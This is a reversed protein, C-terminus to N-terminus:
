TVSSEPPFGHSRRGDYQSSSTAATAAALRRGGPLRFFTDPLHNQPGRLSSLASFHVHMHPSEGMTGGALAIQSGPRYAQCEQLTSYGTVSRCKTHGHGKHATGSHHTRGSRVKLGHTAHLRSRGHYGGVGAQGRPRPANPGGAGRIDGVRLLLDGRPFAMASAARLM